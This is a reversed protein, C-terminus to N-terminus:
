HIIITYDENTVNETEILIDRGYKEYDFYTKINEPIDLYEAYYQGVCKEEKGRETHVIKTYGYNHVIKSAQTWDYGGEVVLDSFVSLQEESWTSFFIDAMYIIYDINDLESIGLEYTMSTDSIFLGHEEREKQFDNYKSQAEEINMLDLEIWENVGKAYLALDSVYIIMENNNKNNGM